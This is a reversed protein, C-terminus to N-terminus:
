AARTGAAASGPAAQTAQNKVMTSPITSIKNKRVGSSNGSPRGGEGRHHGTTHTATM